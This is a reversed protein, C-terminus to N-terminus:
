SGPVLVVPISVVNIPSGDKASVEFVEITGSQRVDTFFSLSTSYRGRCGTGCTATTFGAALVERSADLVQVSVTAEFVDATGAISVPSVVEDGAVPRRVVIAPLGTAGTAGTTGTPGTTAPGATGGESPGTAGTPSDSPSLATTV